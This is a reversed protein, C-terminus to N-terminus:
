QECESEFFAHMIGHELGRLEALGRMRGLAHYGPNACAPKEQDDMIDHGHDPRVPIRWDARGEKKRRIQEECIAKILNYMDVRGGLHHAEYFNGDEEHQTSRLHLFSVRSACEKFMEVVDNQKGASFSGACFCIGNANDDVISLLKRVDEINSFIRPLGLISRPPDDPHIVMRCNAEAAVPVVESLFHRLNNELDQRSVHDYRKLMARVDEITVGKFGPFNDIISRTLNEVEESSLSKFYSEAKALLDASYDAEAGERKLIYIEFAAFQKQDFYLTRGGDPLKYHLDTRVWDLVPMFNYTIVKPGNAVKGLNRLSEKYNEIYEECRGAGLKIDEHVPLSEVVSWTLGAEEIIKCREAIAEVSWVEGYPIEHLSNVVGTAGAQRIYSLSVPDNPGYWRFTPEMFM